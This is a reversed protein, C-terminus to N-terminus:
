TYVGDDWEALGGEFAVAYARWYSLFLDSPNTAWYISPYRDQLRSHLLMSKDACLKALPM